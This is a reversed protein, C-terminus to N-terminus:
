AGEGGGFLDATGEILGNLLSTAINSSPLLQMESTDVTQINKTHKYLEWM